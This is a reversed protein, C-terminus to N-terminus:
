NLDYGACESIAEAKDQQGTQAYASFLARCIDQANDADPGALTRARELPPIAQQFLQRRQQTLREIEDEKERIQQATYKSRNARVDDDIEKIQENIAVAKNIYAAGLNYQANTYDPDIEVARQLQEIAKDYEESELFLSGYNYRYLKNNPERAVADSYTQMARDIQGAAIYANLLQTQIEADEPHVQKARELLTVAEGARDTSTYLSALFIYTDPQNEGKEIATKLPEVAEASRGANILAYARNVYAGSSDPQIRAATDFYAAATGYESENNQGRNFAQIGRQFENFYALRLRQTIDDALAADLERAKEYAALMDAIKATHEDADETAFAQEQLIQGKLYYAEANNPNSALAKNVNELARPYDKNRLDLKAGEVNPDSSCGDAGMLLVGSVLLALLLPFRKM